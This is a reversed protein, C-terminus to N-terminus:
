PTSNPWPVKPTNLIGVIARLSTTGHLTFPEPEARNGKDQGPQGGGRWQQETGGCQLEDPRQEDHGAHEVAQVAEPPHAPWRLPRRVRAGTQGDQHSQQDEASRQQDAGRQRQQEGPREEDIADLAGCLQPPSLFVARRHRQDEGREAVQRRRRQEQQQPAGRRRPRRGQGPRQADEARAPVHDRRRHVGSGLRPGVHDPRQAERIMGLQEPEALAERLLLPRAPRVVPAPDDGERRREERDVDTAHLGVPGQDAQEAGDDRHRTVQDRRQQDGEAHDPRGPQPKTLQGPRQLTAAPQTDHSAVPRARRGAPEVPDEPHPEGPSQADPDPKALRAVRKREGELAPKLHPQRDDRDGHRRNGDPPHAPIEVGLVPRRRDVVGPRLLPGVGPPRGHRTRDPGGRRLRIRRPGERETRRSDGAVEREQHDAIRSLAVRGLVDQAILDDPGPGAGVHAEHDDRRVDDIGRPRHLVVLRVEPQRELPEVLRDVGNGAVVVPVVREFAEHGGEEHGLRGGHRHARTDLGVMSQGARGVAADRPQHPLRRPQSSLVAHGGPKLVRRIELDLGLPERQQRDIGAHEPADIRVLEGPQARPELLRPALERHDDEAMREVGAPCYWAPSSSANAAM